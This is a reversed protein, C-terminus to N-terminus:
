SQGNWPLGYNDDRELRNISDLVVGNRLKNIKSGFFFADPNVFAYCSDGVEFPVLGCFQRYAKGGAWIDFKEGAHYGPYTTVIIDKYLWYPDKDDGGVRTAKEPSFDSLEQPVAVKIYLSFTGASPRGFTYWPQRITTPFDAFVSKNEEYLDKNALYVEDIHKVKLFWPVCAVAQVSIIAWILFSLAAALKRNVSIPVRGIFYFIGIFTMLLMSWAARIVLCCMFVAMGGLLGGLCILPVCSLAIHRTSKRIITILFIIIYIYSLWNLRLSYKLNYILSELDLPPVFFASRVQTGPVVLGLFLLALGAGVIFALSRRTRMSPIALSFVIAGIATAGILEHMWGTLFGLLGALWISKPKGEILLSFAWLMIASSVIYNLNYMGMFMNEFWPMGFYIAFMLASALFFRRRWLGALRASYVFMITTSLAYFLAALWKPLMLFASSILQPLRMNDITFRECVNLWWGNIFNSFTPDAEYAAMTYIFHRDDHILPHLFYMIWFIAFLIAIVVNYKNIYKHAIM